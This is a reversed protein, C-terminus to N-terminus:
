TRAATLELTLRDTARKNKNSNTVTKEIYLDWWLNQKRLLSFIM